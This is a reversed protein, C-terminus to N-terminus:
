PKPHSRPFACATGEIRGRCAVLALPKALSAKADRITFSFGLERLALHIWRRELAPM